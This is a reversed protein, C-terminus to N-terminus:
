RQTRVNAPVSRVGPRLLRPEAWNKADYSEFIDVEVTRLLLHGAAFLRVIIEVCASGIVGLVRGAQKGIFISVDPAIFELIRLPGDEIDVSTIGTGRARDLSGGVLM